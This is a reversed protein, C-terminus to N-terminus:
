RTPGTSIRSGWWCPTMPALHTILELVAVFLGGRPADSSDPEVTSLRAVLPAAAGPGAVGSLLDPRSRRVQRLLDALPALPIVDGGIHTSRGLYLAVDARSASESVLTSKGIGADGGVLVVSPLGNRADAIARDFVAFEARRGVFDETPLRDTCSAVCYRRGWRGSRDVVRDRGLSRLPHTRHAVGGRLVVTSRTRRRALRGVDVKGGSLLCGHVEGVRSGRAADRGIPARAGQSRLKPTATSPAARILVAAQPASVAVSAARM